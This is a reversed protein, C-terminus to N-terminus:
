ICSSPTFGITQEELNFEWLFNQQMINGILSGVYTNSKVIAVCREGTNVVEPIVNWLPPEFVAGNAFHFTFKPVSSWDLGTSKFCFEFPLKPDRKLREYKSLAKIYEAMVADYAPWALWSNSTGSDFVTGGGTVNDYRWIHSPIDLLKGGVSIGVIKVGYQGSSPLFFKFRTLPPHWAAKKNAGFTIYSTVNMHNDFSMLCYSFKPGFNRGTKDAWSSQAFGLGLIGDAKLGKVVTETCGIVMHQLKLTRGTTTLPARLIEEGFFGLALQGGLYSIKYMCHSSPHPCVTMSGMEQLGRRCQKSDCPVPKFSSSRHAQFVNVGKDGDGRYFKDQEGYFEDRYRAHQCDKCDYRCNVWTLDSGTDLVLTYKKPPTGIKVEALYEGTGLDAGSEMKLKIGDKRLPYIAEQRNIDRLHREIILQRQSKPPKQHNGHWKPSDRHILEFTMSGEDDHDPNSNVFLSGDGNIVIISLLSFIFLFSSPTKGKMMQWFKQSSVM